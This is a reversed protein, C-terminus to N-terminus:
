CYGVRRQNHVHVAVGFENKITGERKSVPVIALSFVKAYSILAIAHSNSVDPVCVENGIDTRGNNLVSFFFALANLQSLKFNRAIAQDTMDGLPRHAAIMLRM